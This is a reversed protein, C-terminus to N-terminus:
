NKDHVLSSSVRFSLVTAAVALVIWHLEYGAANNTIQGLQRDLLTITLPDDLLSIGHATAAIIAVLAALFVPLARMWPFKLPPLSAAEREVDRMVSALFQPSPTIRDENALIQDIEDPKM